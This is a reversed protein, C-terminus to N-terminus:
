LLCMKHFCLPHAYAVFFICKVMDVMLFFGLMVLIYLMFYSEYIQFHSSQIKM